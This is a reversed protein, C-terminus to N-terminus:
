TPEDPQRLTHFWHLANEAMAIAAEKSLEIVHFYDWRDRESSGVSRLAMELLRTLGDTPGLSKKAHAHARSVLEIIEARRPNVTRRPLALWALRASALLLLAGVICLSAGIWQKHESLFLAGFMAVLLGSFLFFGIGWFVWIYLGGREDRLAVQPQHHAFAARGKPMQGISKEIEALKTNVVAIEEHISQTEERYSM